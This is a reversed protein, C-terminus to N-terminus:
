AWVGLGAQMGRELIRTWRSKRRLGLRVEAQMAAPVNQLGTPLRPMVSKAGQLIARAMAREKLGYPLGFGAALRAPLLSATLARYLAFLPRLAPSPAEFIFNAMELAPPSVVLTAGAFQAEVYREFESFNTPVLGPGLGFLLAFRKSSEYIESKQAASKATGTLEQIQIASGILTAHVWLLAGSDNGHYRHGAQYDGVARPFTGFIRSHVKHVKRASAIADARSGFTMGYVNEFTAQFRRRVDSVTTSHEAIAYAVYPHALQLLIARGAGLFNVLGANMRWMASDPGHIGTSEDLGLEDLQCVLSELAKEHHSPTVIMLGLIAAQSEAIAQRLRGSKTLTM